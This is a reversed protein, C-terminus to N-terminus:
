KLLTYPLDLLMNGGTAYTTEIIFVIGTKSFYVEANKLIVEIDQADNYKLYELYVAKSIDNKGIFRKEVFSDVIDNNVIIIDDLKLLTNHVIDINICFYFAYPHATGKVYYDGQFLISLLNNSKFKIHYKLEFYSKQEIKVLRYKIAKRIAKKIMKNIKKEKQTDNMNKIQPSFVKKENIIMKESKINYNGAPYAIANNLNDFVLDLKLATTENHTHSENTASIQSSMNKGKNQNDANDCSSQLLVLLFISILFISYKKYYM